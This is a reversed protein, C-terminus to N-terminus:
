DLRQPPFSQCLPCAEVKGYLRTPVKFDVVCHHVRVVLYQQVAIILSLPIEDKGGVFDTGRQVYQSPRQSITLTLLSIMSCCTPSYLKQKSFSAEM